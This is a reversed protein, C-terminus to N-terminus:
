LDTLFILSCTRTTVTLNYTHPAAGTYCSPNYTAGFSRVKGTSPIGDDMKRDIGEAEDARLVPTSTGTGASGAIGFILANGYAGSAAFLGWTNTCLTPNDLWMLSFASGEVSGRPVNSGATFAWTGTTSVGTFATSVLGASALHQWVRFVEYRQTTVFVASTCVPGVKGNGDGNCTGTAGGGTPCTGSDTGWLTQATAFDGPLAQYAEKFNGIATIYNDADTMVTQLQSTVLLARGVLVGAVIAGIIGMVIAMELLSFGRNRQSPNYQGPNYQDKM